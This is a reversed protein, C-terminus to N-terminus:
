LKLSEFRNPTTGPARYPSVEPRLAIVKKGKITVVLESFEFLRFVTVTFDM